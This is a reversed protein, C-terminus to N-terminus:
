ARSGPSLLRRSASSSQEMPRHLVVRKGEARGRAAAAARTTGAFTRRRVHPHRRRYYDRLGPDGLYVLGTSQHQRRAGNLKNRFGQIVGAMFASRDGPRLDGAAYARAWLEKATRLLFDHVYEAMAVNDESGCIELQQEQHGTRPAYVSTWIAEVFFHEILVSGILSEARSKRRQPKGLHRFVYRRQSGELSLQHRLMLEQAREMALEAEHRNDSGALSLLRRLKETLRAAAPEAPAPSPHGAASADIARERCVRQFTPGHSPEDRVGLVEDVYQHALEHRLVEVVEGWPRELVLSRSLELVRLAPIWRGLVQADTLRLVAPRLAGGFWDQNASQVEILLQRLLASELESGLEGLEHATAM